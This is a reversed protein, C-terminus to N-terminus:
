GQGAQGYPAQDDEKCPGHNVGPTERPCTHYKGGLFYTYYADLTEEGEVYLSFLTDPFAKSLGQCEERAGYWTFAEEGSLWWFGTRIGTAIMADVMPKLAPDVDGIPDYDEDSDREVYDDLQPGEGCTGMVVEGGTEPHPFTLRYHCRYGMPSM